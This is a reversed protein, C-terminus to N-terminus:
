RRNGEVPLDFWGTRVRREFLEFLQGIRQADDPDSTRRFEFGAASQNAWGLDGNPLRFYMHMRGLHLVDALYRKGDVLVAQRQLSSERGIRLEDEILAYYRVVGKAPTLLGEKLQRLLEEIAQVRGEQRFPLDALVDRKLQILAQELGPLLRESGSAALAIAAKRKEMLAKAQSLRTTERQLELTLDTEQARLTRLEARQAARQDEVAVALSDVESRLRVLADVLPTVQANQTAFLISFVTLM